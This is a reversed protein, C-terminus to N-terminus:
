CLDEGHSIKPSLNKGSDVLKIFVHRGDFYYKDGNGEQVKEVSNAYRFLCLEGEANM